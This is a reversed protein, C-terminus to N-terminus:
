FLCPVRRSSSEDKISFRFQFIETEKLISGMMYWKKTLLLEYSTIMNIYSVVIKILDFLFYSEKEKDTVDISWSPVRENRDMSLATSFTFHMSPECWLGKCCEVDHLKFRNYIHAAIIEILNNAITSIYINWTPIVTHAYFLKRRVIM